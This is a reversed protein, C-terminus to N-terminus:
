GCTDGGQKLKDRMEGVRNTLEDWWQETCSSTQLPQGQFWDIHQPAGDRARISNLENYVDDLLQILGQHTM